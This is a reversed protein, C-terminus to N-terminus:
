HKWQPKVCAFVYALDEDLHRMLGVISTWMFCGAVMKDEAYDYLPLFTVSKADPLKNRLELHHIKQKQSPQTESSLNDANSIAEDGSSIGGDDKM